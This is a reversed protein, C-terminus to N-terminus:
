FVMDIGMLIVNPQTDSVKNHRHLFETKFAAAQHFDYRIGVGSTISEDDTLYALKTAAVLEAVQANDSPLTDLRPMIRETVLARNAKAVLSKTESYTLHYTLKQWRYGFTSYWVTRDNQMPANEIKINTLESIWLWPHEDIYVGIGSFRAEDNTLTLLDLANEDLPIQLLAYADILDNYADVTADTKAMTLQLTFWDRNLSWTIDKVQKTEIDTDRGAITFTTFSNGTVLNLKSTWEDLQHRFEINIGDTNDVGALIYLDAPPNIWPYSYGM